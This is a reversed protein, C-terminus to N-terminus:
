KGKKNSFDILNSKREEMKQVFRGIGAFIECREQDPDILELEELKYEHGITSIVYIKFSTPYFDGHESKKTHISLSAIFKDIQIKTTGGTITSKYIAEKVPIPLIVRTNLSSM